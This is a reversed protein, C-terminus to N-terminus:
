MFADGDFYEEEDEDEVFNTSDLEAAIEMEMFDVKWRLLGGIGGFGKCFQSGEQSRDTVFELNAGFTKYNNALWEVLTVRDIVELLVGTTSDHFHTDNKEQDPSLHLVKEENTTTNRVVIRNITLNEWVILTEVSSMELAQLTDQVMFCYKGTDQSIEDFYKQLLRKEQVLKVNQLCETALEIAQNFGPDMGYSVDVTKIVAKALRPDFMDSNFLDTKFDASGALVLGTVNCKNETIFYNVALEACKRVYNHRKELRLRAFRLASQGGRGHKKPLDVTFKHLVSRTNGQLTAYLCGNGDMIIFGFVDDDELLENLAQCIFLFYNITTIIKFSLM